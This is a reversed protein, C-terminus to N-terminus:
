LLFHLLSQRFCSKEEAELAKIEHSVQRIKAENRRKEEKLKEIEKNM